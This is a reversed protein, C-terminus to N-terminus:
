WVWQKGLQFNGGGEIRCLGSEGRLPRVGLCPSLIMRVDSRRLPRLRLYQRRQDVPRHGM